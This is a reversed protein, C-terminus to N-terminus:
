RIDITDDFPETIIHDEMDEIPNGQVSVKLNGETKRVSKLWDIFQDLNVM